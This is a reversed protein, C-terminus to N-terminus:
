GGRTLTDTAFRPALGDVPGRLGLADNSSISEVDDHVEEPEGLVLPQELSAPDADHLSAPQVHPRAPTHSAFAVAEEHTAFSTELDVAEAPPNEVRIQFPTSGGSAIAHADVTQIIEFLENSHGDRLTIRVPPAEKDGHGINRIEGSVLLVPTAGEFAREVALDNFELGYVNVDLGVAAFASASRPWIEAVDQRFMVAGGVSAALAAGTAGWAVLAVRARERRMRDAQQQRYRAAASPAPGPSAAARRM